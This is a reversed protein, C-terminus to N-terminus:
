EWHKPSDSLGLLYDASVKYTKCITYLFPTAVLNRGREYNAIVSRNTNLINALKDQTIKMEKRFEKLRLGADKTNIDNNIKNYKQKDTFNFIYDLSVNFYKCVNILHTIPIITKEREFESYSANSIGIVKALETQKVGEYTRIDKLRNGYIM